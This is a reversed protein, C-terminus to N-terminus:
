LPSIILAFGRWFPRRGRPWPYKLCWRLFGDPDHRNQDNAGYAISVLSVMYAVFALGRTNTYEQHAMVVSGHGHVRVSQSLWTHGSTTCPTQVHGPNKKCSCYCYARYLTNSTSTHETDLRARGHWLSGHGIMCSM